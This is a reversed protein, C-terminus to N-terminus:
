FQVLFLVSRCCMIVSITKLEQVRSANLSNYYVPVSICIKESRCDSPQLSKQKFLGFLFNDQVSQMKAKAPIPTAHSKTYM